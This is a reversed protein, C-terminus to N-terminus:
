AADGAPTQPKAAKPKSARKAAPKKAPEAAAKTAPKRARAPTAKAAVVAEGAAATETEPVALKDRMAATSSELRSLSSVTAERIKVKANELTQTTKDNRWLKIAVAGTAIGAIFPLLPLM